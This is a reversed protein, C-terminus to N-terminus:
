FNRRVATFDRFINLGRNGRTLDEYRGDFPNLYYKLRALLPVNDHDNVRPQPAATNSTTTPRDKVDLM